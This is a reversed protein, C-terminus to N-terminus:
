CRTGNLLPVNDIAILKLRWGDSVDKWPSAYNNGHEQIYAMERRASGQMINQPLPLCMLRAKVRLLYGDM